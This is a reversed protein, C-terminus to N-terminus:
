VFIQQLQHYDYCNTLLGSTYKQLILGVVATYFALLIHKLSKHLSALLLVIRFLIHKNLWLSLVSLAEHKRCNLLASEFTLSTYFQLVNRLINPFTPWKRCLICGQIVSVCVVGVSQFM